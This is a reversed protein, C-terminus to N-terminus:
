DRGHLFWSVMKRLCVGCLDKDCIGSPYVRQGELSGCYTKPPYGDGGARALVHIKVLSEGIGDFVLEIM